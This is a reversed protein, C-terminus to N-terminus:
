IVDSDPFGRGPIVSALLPAFLAHMWEVSLRQLNPLREQLLDDVRLLDSTFVISGAETTLRPAPTPRGDPMTM